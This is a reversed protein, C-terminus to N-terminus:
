NMILISHIIVRNFICLVAGPILLYIFQWAFKSKPLSSSSSPLPRGGDVSQPATPPEQRWWQIAPAKTAPDISFVYIIVRRDVVAYAILGARSQHGKALACTALLSTGVLYNDIKPQAVGLLPCIKPFWLPHLNLEVNDQQRILILHRRHVAFLTPSSSSFNNLRLGDLLLCSKM